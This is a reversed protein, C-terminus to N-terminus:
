KMVIDKREKKRGKMLELTGKSPNAESRPDSPTCRKLTCLAKSM